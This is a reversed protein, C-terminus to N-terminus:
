EPKAAAGAEPAAGSGAAKPQAIHLMEREYDITVVFHRLVDYGLMGNARAGRTIHTATEVRGWGERGTLLRQGEAPVAVAVDGLEFPGLRLTPMVLIEVPAVKGLVDTSASAGKRYAALWGEREAVPRSLVVPGTAGTDLLLWLKKEGPFTVQVAPQCTTRGPFEPEFAPGCTGEASRMRVNDYADLDVAERPLIRIRSGPYDIQLILKNLFGVGVRLPTEPHRMAPTDRLVVDVGFLQVDLQSESPVIKGALHASSMRYRPGSLSLGIREAFSADISNISAGTDLAATTAVGEVIAPFTLAGDRVEIPIWGEAGAATVWLGALLSLCFRQWTSRM